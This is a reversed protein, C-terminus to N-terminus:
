TFACCIHARGGRQATAPLGELGRKATVVRNIVSSPQSYKIKGKGHTVYVNQKWKSNLHSFVNNADVKEQQSNKIGKSTLSKLM